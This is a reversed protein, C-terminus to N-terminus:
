EKIWNDSYFWEVLMKMFEETWKVRHVGEVPVEICRDLAYDFADEHPVFMGTKMEKYGPGKLRESIRDAENRTWESDILMRNEIMETM